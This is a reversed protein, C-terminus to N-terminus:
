NPLKFGFYHKALEGEIRKPKSKYKKMIRNGFRRSDFNDELQIDNERAFKKYDDFLLGTPVTDNPNGTYRTEIWLSTPDVDGKYEATAEVVSEPKKLGDKQWKSCGEVAWRLIGGIESHFTALLKEQAILKSDKIRVTFPILHIRDWIAQDKVSLNPRQNVAMILKFKPLYSFSERYLFRCTIPDGGTLEKIVTADLIGNRGVESTTVLRADHLSALDNRISDNGRDMFTQTSSAKAYEGMLDHLVRLFTSKGNKGHGYMIFVARELISGTLCYGVLKQLYDKLNEDGDTIDDIFKLFEPCEGNVDLSAKSTQTLLFKPSHELLEGKELDIVGNACSFLYDDKNFEEFSERMLTKALNIVSVMNANSECSKAFKQWQEKLPNVMGATADWLQENLKFLQTKVHAVETDHRMNWNAGVYVAWLNQESIYKVYDGYEDHFQKARYKNNQYYGLPRIVGMQQAEPPVWREIASGLMKSVEDEPLPPQLHRQNARNVKRYISNITGGVQILLGIYSIMSDNRGGQQVDTNGKWGNQRQIGRNIPIVDAVQPRALTLLWDPVDAIPVENPERDYWIYGSKTQSFSPPAIAYSGRCRVDIGKAIKNVSQPAGGEPYNFYYHRGGSPTESVLTEPLPEHEDELHQLATIGNIHKGEKDIKVDLDLVFLNSEETAIGIGVHPRKYFWEELKGKENTCEERWKCGGLPHKDKKTPLMKWGLEAYILAYELLTDM